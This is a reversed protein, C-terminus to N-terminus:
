FGNKERLFEVIDKAIATRYKSKGWSGLILKWAIFIIIIRKFFRMIKNQKIWLIANVANLLRQKGKPYPASIINAPWFNLQLKKTVQKPNSWNRFGELGGCRGMGSFGVGGFGCETDLAQTM